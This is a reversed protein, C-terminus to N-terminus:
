VFFVQGSNGECKWFCCSSKTMIDALVLYFSSFHIHSGILDLRPFGHKPWALLIWSCHGTSCVFSVIHLIYADMASEHEQGAAASDQSGYRRSHLIDAYSNGSWACMLSLCSKILWWHLVTVAQEFSYNEGWGGWSYTFKDESSALSAICTRRLMTKWFKFSTLLIHWHGPLYWLYPPRVFHFSNLKSSQDSTGMNCTAM